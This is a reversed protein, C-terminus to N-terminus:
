SEGAGNDRPRAHKRCLLFRNEIKQLPKRFGAKAEVDSRPASCFAKGECPESRSLGERM